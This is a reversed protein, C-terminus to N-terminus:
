LHVFSSLRGLDVLGLRLRVVNQICLVGVGRPRAFDKMQM